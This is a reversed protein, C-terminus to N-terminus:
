VVVQKWGINQIYEMLSLCGESNPCTYLIFSLHNVFCISSALTVSSNTFAPRPSNVVTWIIYTYLTDLLVDVQYKLCMASLIVSWDNLSGEINIRKGSTRFASIKTGWPTKTKSFARKTARLLTTTFSLKDGKLWSQLISWGTNGILNLGRKKYCSLCIFKLVHAPLGPKVALRLPGTSLVTPTQHFFWEIIPLVLKSVFSELCTSIQIKETLTGWLKRLEPVWLVPLASAEVM